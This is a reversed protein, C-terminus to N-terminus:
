AAAKLSRLFEPRMPQTMQLNSEAQRLSNRCFLIEGKSNHIRHLVGDAVYRSIEDLTFQHIQAAEGVTVLTTQKKCLLCFAQTKTREREAKKRQVERIVKVLDM